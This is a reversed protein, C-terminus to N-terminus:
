SELYKYMIHASIYKEKKFYFAEPITGIIKFGLSKWLYIAAKNTEIVMNFQIARFGLKKAEVLSHKGMSRGIGKNWHDPHVMYSGNAIHSGLDIQNPKLIYTGVVTGDWEAVFTHIHHGFWHMELDERPTHPDFVYTDARLVVAHFIHWVADMDNRDARRITLHPSIRDQKGTM